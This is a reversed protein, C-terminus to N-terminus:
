QVSLAAIIARAPASRSTSPSTLPRSATARGRQGSSSAAARELGVWMGPRLPALAHAFVPLGDADDASAGPAGGQGLYAAQAVEADGDPRALDLHHVGDVAVEGVGQEQRAHRQVLSTAAVVLRAAIAAQSMMRATTGAWCMRAM